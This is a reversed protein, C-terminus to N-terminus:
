VSQVFGKWTGLINDLNTMEALAFEGDSAEHTIKGKQIGLRKEGAGQSARVKEGEFEVLQTDSFPLLRVCCCEGMCLLTYTFVGCSTVSRLFESDDAFHLDM